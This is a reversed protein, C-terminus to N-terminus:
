LETTRRNEENGYGKGDKDLVPCYLLSPVRVPLRPRAPTATTATAPAASTPAPTSAANASYAPPLADPIQGPSSPSSSEPSRNPPSSASSPSTSRVFIRFASRSRNTAPKVHVDVTSSSPTSTSPKKIAQHAHDTKESSNKRKMRALLQM